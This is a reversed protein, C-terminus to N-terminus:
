ADQYKEILQRIISSGFDNKTIELFQRTTVKDEMKYGHNEMFVKRGTECSGTLDHHWHYFEEVTYETDIEFKAAFQEIKDASSMSALIKEELAAVAGKATDGHAFYGQGRAVYCPRTTMDDKVIFGSAMDGHMHELVTPVSDIYYVPKGDYEIIPNPQKPHKRSM